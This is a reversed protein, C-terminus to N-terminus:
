AQAEAGQGERIWERNSEEEEEGGAKGSGQRERNWVQREGM